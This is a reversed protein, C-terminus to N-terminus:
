KSDGLLKRVEAGIDKGQAAALMLDPLSEAVKAKRAAEVKAAIEEPTLAQPAVRVTWRSAGDLKGFDPHPELAVRLKGNEDTLAAAEGNELIPGGIEDEAEPSGRESVLRYGVVYRVGGVDLTEVKYIM